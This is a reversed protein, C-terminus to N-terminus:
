QTSKLQIRTCNNFYDNGIKNSYNPNHSNFELNNFVRYRDIDINTNITNPKYENYLDSNTDPVYVSREDKQLAYIRNQLISEDEINNSFGSFHSKRNGTNYMSTIDYDRYKIHTREQLNGFVNFHTYKTPIPRFDINPELNNETIQRNIISNNIHNQKEFNQLKVNYQTM